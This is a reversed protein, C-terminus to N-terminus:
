PGTPWFGAEAPLDNAEWGGGLAMYLQVVAVLRDRETQALTNEAPFLQQQAELVEYYSALGGEYRLIALRVSEQLAKVAEQQEAEVGVLKQQAILADSVETLATIVTQEYQQKAAEWNAKQARYSETLQGGTFLPGLVSGAVNWVVGPGKIINEIETSEGGYLTTLGIRPFFNAVSVGVLANASAIQQEAALVDPRRRLLESPLGPPTEPPMSDLTLVAQRPIPGPQRGLLVCMQNETQVIQQELQPITAATTHLAAKAREVALKTDVGGLFRRNFLAETERFSQTTRQAIDLLLDLEQLDFYTQAVNSVLSLVVGRRVDDAALMDAISAETARRIRGWVDIEWALNFTGLFANVTPNEPLFGTFIKGRQAAGQYSAQPFLPSRTVGVTHEAQEVRFVATRLQYNNALAEDILGRLTEDRFVDWWPADAFSAAEAPEIESRYDPPMDPEPKVFNPGVPCGALFL